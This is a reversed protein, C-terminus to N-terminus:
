RPPRTPNAFELHVIEPNSRQVLRKDVATWTETPPYSYNLSSNFCRFLIIADDADDDDCPVALIAWDGALLQSCKCIVLRVLKGGRLCFPQGIRNYVRTGPACEYVGCIHHLHADGEVSLKSLRPGTLREALLKVFFRPFLPSEIEEQSLDELIPNKKRIHRQRFIFHLDKMHKWSFITPDLGPLSMNFVASVWKVGREKTLPLGYRNAIAINTVLEDLDESPIAIETFTQSELRQHLVDDCLEIGAEFDYKDYFPLLTWVDQSTMSRAKVPNELFKLASEFDDPTVGEFVIRRSKHEQMDASLAADVFKSLTALRQGYMECEMEQMEVPPGEDPQVSDDDSENDRAGNNKHKDESQYRLVITIDPDASRLKKSPSPTPMDEVNSDVDDEEHHRRQTAM